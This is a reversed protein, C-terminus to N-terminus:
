VTAANGCVSNRKDRDIAFICILEAVRSNKSRRPAVCLREVQDSKTQAFVTYILSYILASSFQDSRLLNDIICKLHFQVFFALM